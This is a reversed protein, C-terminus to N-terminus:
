QMNFRQHRHRIKFKSHQDIFRSIMCLNSHMLRSQQVNTSMNFPQVEKMAQGGGPGLPWLFVQCGSDTQGMNHSVAEFVSCFLNITKLQVEDYPHPIRHNAAKVAFANCLHM